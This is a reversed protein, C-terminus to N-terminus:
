IRGGFRVHPVAPSAVRRAISKQIPPSTSSPNALAESLDRLLATIDGDHILKELEIRAKRRWNGNEGSTSPVNQSNVEGWLDELNVIVMRAPSDRLYALCARYVAESQSDESDLEGRLQLFHVVADRLRQRSAQEDDRKEPPILSAAAREELDRGGWFGAFPPMDHTNVSAISSAPPEPLAAGRDPQIEYEVVYMRQVNHRAMSKPVEPPVTGLDEGVLVTRHRHSELSFVAYLEEAPYNVYVGARAPMGPQIWFVRHFSPMHDIRLVKAM